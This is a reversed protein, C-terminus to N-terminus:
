LDWSTCDFMCSECHWSLLTICLTSVGLTIFQSCDNTSRIFNVVSAITSSWHHFRELDLIWSFKEPIKGLNRVVVTYALDVIALVARDVWVPRHSVSVSVRSWLSYRVITYRQTPFYSSLDFFLLWPVRVVFLISSIGVPIYWIISSFVPALSPYFVRGIIQKSVPCSLCHSMTIISTM